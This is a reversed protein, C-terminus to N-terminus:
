RNLWYILAPLNEIGFYIYDNKELDGHRKVYTFRFIDMFDVYTNFGYASDRKYFDGEM